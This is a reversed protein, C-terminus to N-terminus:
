GRAPVCTSASAPSTAKATPVACATRSTHRRHTGSAVEKTMPLNQRNGLAEKNDAEEVAKTIPVAAATLAPAAMKVAPEFLSALQPIQM